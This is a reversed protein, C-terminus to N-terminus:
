GETKKTLDFTRAAKRAEALKEQLEAITEEHETITEEANELESRCDSLADYLWEIHTEADNRLRANVNRLQELAEATQAKHETLMDTICSGVSDLSDNLEAIAKDIDPCTYASELRHTDYPM